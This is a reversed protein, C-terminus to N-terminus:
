QFAELLLIVNRELDRLGWIAAVKLATPYTDNTSQHLNVDDHPSLTDYDGLPRDLLQLARNALVENVNMNTSTGAGGQLADVVVHRDLRGEIMERCVAEIAAFTADDWRGLERNTRAAALKVEGYAHVLGRHVPRGALPFNELARATHVGYLTEAPVDRTGLLDTEQRRTMAFRDAKM